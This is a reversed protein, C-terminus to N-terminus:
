MLITSSFTHIDCIEQDHCHYWKLVREFLYLTLLGLIVFIFINQSDNGELAEPLLDFFVAGLIAGVAFSVLVLSVRKAFNEKTLLIIGGILAFVSGVLSAILIQLFM